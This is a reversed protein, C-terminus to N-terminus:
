GPASELEIHGGAQHVIGHVTSLGLGTGAGLPKTTFFPEFVRAQVDPPMGAGTDTVELRVVPRGDRVANASVIRLTGAGQMADRANVALNMVVQEFQSPDLRVLHLGPTRPTELAIGPGLLPALLRRLGEVLEGADVLRPQIERRRAFALLHQTLASARTAGREIEAVDARRPDDAALSDRLLTAYGLVATLINNFDHAIGGALRGISELRRQEAERAEQRARESVDRVVQSAGVIEGRDDRVPSFGIEIDMETGDTGRVRRAVHFSEGGLARLWLALSDQQLEPRQRLAEGFSMGVALDPSLMRRAHALWRPNAAILTLERDVAAVEDPAGEFVARLQALASRARRAADDSQALAIPFAMGPGVFAAVYIWALRFQEIKGLRLAVFPGADIWIGTIVAVVFLMAIVAFGRIGFRLGAWALFPLTALAPPVDQTGFRLGIFASGLALAYGAILALFELGLLPRQAMARPAGPMLALVVCALTAGSTASAVWWGFGSFSVLTGAGALHLVLSSFASAVLTGAVVTGVLWAYATTSRLPARAGSILEYLAVVWVSQGLLTAIATFMRAVEFGSRLARPAFAVLLAAALWGAVATRRGRPAALLIALVLGHTPWAVFANAFHGLMPATTGAIVGTVVIAIGLAPPIAERPITGQATTTTM